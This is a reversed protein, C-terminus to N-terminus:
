KKKTLGLKEMMKGTVIIEKKLKKMVKEGSIPNMDLNNNKSFKVFKPDKMMEGFKDNLYKVIRPDVGKPVLIFKWVSYDVDYGQEKFTPVDKLMYYREPSLIGIAKLSGNKIHPIIESPHAPAVDVHEGLLAVLGGTNGGSFPVHDAKIKAKAFLDMGGIHPLSGVANGGYKIAKQAKELDEFSKFKSNPNVALVIPEYSLGIIAKFDDLKYSVDRMKPQTTFVGVADLLLTYGDARAVKTESTAITGGAGNRNVVVLPQGL